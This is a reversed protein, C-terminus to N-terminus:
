ECLRTTAACQRREDRLREDANCARCCRYERAHPAIPCPIEDIGGRRRESGHERLISNLMAADARENTGPRGGWISKESAVVWGNTRPRCRLTRHWKICLAHPVAAFRQSTM